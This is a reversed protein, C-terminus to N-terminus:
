KELKAQLFLRDGPLIQFNTTTIGHKTIGVWDIQLVRDSGDRERRALWLDMREYDDKRRNLSLVADYVTVSGTLPVKDTQEPSTLERVHVTYDPATEITACMIVMSLFVIM